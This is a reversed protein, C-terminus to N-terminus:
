NNNIYLGFGVKFDQQFRFFNTINVWSSYVMRISDNLKYKFSSEVVYESDVRTYIAASPM